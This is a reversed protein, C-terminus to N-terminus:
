KWGAQSGAYARRRLRQLAGSPELGGGTNWVNFAVRDGTGERREATAFEGVRRFRGLPAAVCLEFRRDGLPRAGFLFTKGGARYPLSSSYPRSDPSRALVLGHHLVPADVSTALLLDQHRGPGHVDVLRLAIGFVDPLPAPLGVGRSFRVLGELEAPERLLAVPPADAAGDIRVTAEFLAGRPHLSKASRLKSLSGFLGAAARGALDPPSTPM